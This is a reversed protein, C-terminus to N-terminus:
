KKKLELVQKELSSVKELLVRMEPHVRALIELKMQAANESQAATIEKHQAMGIILPQHGQGLKTIHDVLAHIKAEKIKVDDPGVPSEGQVSLLLEHAGKLTKPLKFDGLDVENSLAIEEATEPAKFGILHSIRATDSLPPNGFPAKDIDAM